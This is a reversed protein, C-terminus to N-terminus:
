RRFTRRGRRFGRNTKKPTVGGSLSKFTEGAMVPAKFLSEIFAYEDDREQATDVIGLHPGLQKAMGAVMDIRDDYALKSTTSFNSIQATLTFDQYSEQGSDVASEYDSVLAEPTIVMRGGNIVSDLSEIRLDKAQQNHVPIVTPLNKRGRLAAYADDMIARVFEASTNLNSEIYIATSGFKLSEDLIRLINEKNLGGQLGAVKHLVLYGSGAAAMGYALEDSGSGAPDIYTIKADYPKTKESIKFPRYFKEGLDACSYNAMHTDVYDPERAHQLSTPFVNLPADFLIIRTIDLTRTGESSRYLNLLCQREYHVKGESQRMKIEEADFRDLPEDVEREQIWKRVQKPYHPWCVDAVAKPPVSM